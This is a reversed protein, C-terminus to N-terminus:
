KASKAAPKKLKGTKKLETLSPIGQRQASDEAARNRAYTESLASKDSAVTTSLGGLRLLTSVREAPTGTRLKDQTSNYQTGRPAINLLSRRIQDGKTGKLPAGSRLDTGTATEIASKAAQGYTGGLNTSLLDALGGQAGRTTTFKEPLAWSAIDALPQLSSAAADFPSQLTGLIPVGGVKMLPAQRGALAYSAIPTDGTDANGVDAQLRSVNLPIRPNSAAVIAQMKANRATFTWFIILKRLEKEGQGLDAYDFLANKTAKAAEKPDGHQLMQDIFMARRSVDDVVTNLAAGRQTLYGEANRVDFGRKIRAGLSNSEGIGIGHTVDSRLQGSNVVGYKQIETEFRRWKPPLTAIAEDTSLGQKHAKHLASQIRGATTFTRPDKFGNAAMNPLNGALDRTNRAVIAIDANLVLNKLVQTGVSMGKSITDWVGPEKVKGEIENLRKSLSEPMYAEGLPGMKKKVFGTPREIKEADRLEKKSQRFEAKLQKQQDVLDALRDRNVVGSLTSRSNRRVAHDMDSQAQKLQKEITKVLVNEYKVSTRTAGVRQQVGKTATRATEAANYGQRFKKEQVAGKLAATYEQRIQTRVYDPISADALVANLESKIAATTRSPAGLKSPTAASQAARKDVGAATRRSEASRLAAELGEIRKSTRRIVATAVEAKGLKRADGTKERQVATELKKRQKDLDRVQAKTAVELDRVQKTNDPIFHLLKNGAEDTMDGIKHVLDVKTAQDYTTAAKKGLAKAANTEYADKIGYKEAIAANKEAITAGPMFSRSKTETNSLFEGPGQPRYGLIEQQAEPIKSIAKRAEDTIQHPVYRNTDYAKKLLGSNMRVDTIERRLQDTADLYSAEAERGQSRLWQSAEVHDGAELVPTV